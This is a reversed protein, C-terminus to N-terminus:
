SVKKIRAPQLSHLPFDYCMLTSAVSMDWDESHIWIPESQYTFIEFAKQKYTECNKHDQKFYEEEWFNSFESWINCGDVM